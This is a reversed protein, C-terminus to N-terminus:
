AAGSSFCVGADISWIVSVPDNPAYGIDAVTGTVTVEAGNGLTVFYDATM